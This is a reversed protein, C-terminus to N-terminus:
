NNSTSRDFDCELLLKDIFIVKQYFRKKIIFIKIILPKCKEIIIVSILFIHSNKM